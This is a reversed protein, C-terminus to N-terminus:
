PAGGPAHISWFDKRCLGRAACHECASGDGLAPLPHGQALRALDEGVGQALAERAIDIAGQELFETDGREGVNVYFARLPQPGMLTAYFPLQTDELPEKIRQRTTQLDETKYDLVAITGDPLEDIRDIRGKLRVPGLEISRGLEGGAYRAQYKAEFAAWAGLYGERVQPWAAAFPLFDAPTLGRRATVADAAEDLWRTWQAPAVPQGQADAQALSEHFRHLVDHLWNGFDRKELEVDLESAEQLGLQRLAFYRYPCRRLDGYASASLTETVLQPAAPAPRGQPTSPILRTERPDVAQPTSVESLCAQVWASALVPEGSDDQGRWLLDVAPVTLLAQWADSLAQELQERTPLGLADRQAATWPGVPDPSAVLRQEDCGPAVAAAFRRGLMQHLPLLVVQPQEPTEPRFSVAELAEAAWAVFEDLRLRRQGQPRSAWLAQGADDVGLAALLQAGAADALLDVELGTTAWVRRLAAQWATLSRPGQLAQRWANTQAVLACAPQLDQPAGPGPAAEGAAGRGAGRAEQGAEIARALAGEVSGWHRLGVRRLYRELAQLAVQPTAPAAKLGDLVEDATADHRAARLLAMCRSAARTTSLKWGTEDACRVGRAALLARVRRTLLRDIAVLAVPERGQALHQMVCAAAREAEDAPDECAHLAPRGGPAGGRLVWRRAQGGLAAALARAVPDPQLGDVVVLLDLAGAADAAWLRDTAYASAGAWEIALRALAAELALVPHDLGWGAAQRARETWHPRETPPVAAALPALQGTAEVLRPALLRAKSGLGAGELLARASLLDVGRDFSLDHEDPSFGYRAAWSLTTEFRPVFGDPAHRAWQARAEALLQGYPLLVVTRAPHARVAAMCAALQAPLEILDCTPADQAPISAVPGTGAIAGM